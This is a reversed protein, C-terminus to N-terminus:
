QTENIVPLGNLHPRQLGTEDSYSWISESDYINWGMGGFMGPDSFQETTFSQIGRGDSNDENIGNDDRRWICDVINGLSEKTTFGKVKQSLPGFSYCNSIVVNGSQRWVHGVFGGATSKSDETTVAGICYCNEISTPTEGACNVSGVFGGISGDGMVSGCSYSLSISGRMIYGAFGGTAGITGKKTINGTAICRTVISNTFGAFGGVLANTEDNLANVNGGAKCLDVRCNRIFGGFGGVNGCNSTIIEVSSNCTSIASDKVSGVFGGAEGVSLAKLQGRAECNYIKAGNYAYGCFGGSVNGDYVTISSVSVSNTIVSNCALGVLGGIHPSSSNVAGDSYCGTITSTESYGTIGGVSDGSSIKFNLVYLDKIVAYEIYGFLGASKSGQNEIHFNKVAFGAGDFIGSFERKDFPGSCYGIPQWVTDGLDIDCALRFHVGEYTIGNCVAESLKMMHVPKSIIYATEPSKGDGGEFQISFLDVYQPIIWKEYTADLM